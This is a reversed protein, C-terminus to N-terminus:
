GALVAITVGEGGDRPDPTELRRVLPHRTLAERIAARLAGTGKGHIIRVFPLGARFADDLFSETRAIAEDARQGRLDIETPVKPLPVEPLRVPGTGPAPEVREIRDVTVRMRASGFQVDLRGEADIRGLARGPQPIGRVFVLDGPALEREAPAAAPARRELRDLRAGLERLAEEAAAPDFERRALRRRLKAVERQVEALEAAAERRVAELIESREQELRSRERALEARISAAEAREREAAERAAEAADRAARVDALLQELEAHEATLLARARALIAPELGLREAIAIANSQGPLGITLRYTPSLTELDFEVSANRLRPDTHAFLKLEAHHTTAVVVAGRDLLSELVARALAAGETPDTGAGLEDLLALTGPGARRLISIIHRLHSSFTSLSQEISQEDGIDAYVQRFVVFRSGPECPVPIGAQAMLTLLGLTKLAVTKGGTNPGTILLGPVEAGVDLDIPVVEGRLLPHRARRLVVTGATQIWEGRPSEGPLGAGISAGFRALARCADLRALAEVAAAIEEARAAVAAGLRLLVRREERAVTVELERVANGAEVLALPEVFVTAGSASVDHVIGAVQGRFDAKIPVVKRGNRETILPEQAIGRRVADALAAQALADLREQAARLQRRALALAESAGDAVEGRRTIARELTRVLDRFDAITSAVAALRPAHPAVRELTGRIRMAARLLEELALLDRPELLQGKAAATLLPRVDALGGLPLEIGMRELRAMEAVEAHRERIRELDVVPRLALVLERGPGFAAFGAARELIKGFELVQLAHDDM